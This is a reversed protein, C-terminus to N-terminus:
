RLQKLSEKKRRSVPIEDGNSMVIVSDKAVQRIYAKNILHSKHIRMFGYDELIEEFEKLTKSVLLPRRDTFHFRTYNNEAECRIITDAHTFHIGDNDSLALKFHQVNPQQLNRILNDIKQQSKGNGTQLRVIHKNMANHLEHMDIPKLLYDIASFRIAKIAYVDYATTFIVDFLVGGLKNLLDFGNMGPMEIDLMLLTPNWDPIQQLAEQPHNCIKLAYPVSINKEILLRLMNSAAPEDDVIMIRVEHKMEM